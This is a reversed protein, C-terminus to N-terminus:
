DGQLHTLQALYTDRYLNCSAKEWTTLYTSILDYELYAVRSFNYSRELDGEFYGAESQTLRPLNGNDVQHKQRHGHDTTSIWGRRRSM